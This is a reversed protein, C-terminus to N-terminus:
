NRLRTALSPPASYLFGVHDDPVYRPMHRFVPFGAHQAQPGVYTMGARALGFAGPFVGMSYSLKLGRSMGRYGKEHFWHDAPLELHM